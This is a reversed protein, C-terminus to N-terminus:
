EISKGGAQDCLQMQLQINETGCAYVHWLHLQRFVFFCSEPASSFALSTLFAFLCQLISSITWQLAM